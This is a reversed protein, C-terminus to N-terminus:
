FFEGMYQDGPNRRNQQNRLAQEFYSSAPTVEKKQEEESGFEPRENSMISSYRTIDKTNSDMRKTIIQLKKMAEVLKM